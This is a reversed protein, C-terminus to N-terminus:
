RVAELVADQALQGAFAGLEAVSWGRRLPVTGTSVAFLSDGDLPTAFPEIVRGLASHSMVALRQLEPHNLEADTVIVTL